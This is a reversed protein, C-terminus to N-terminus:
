RATYRVFSPIPSAPSYAFVIDIVAERLCRSVPTNMLRDEDCNQVIWM